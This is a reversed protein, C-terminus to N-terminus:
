LAEMSSSDALYGLSKLKRQLTTRPIDLFKALARVSGHQRLKKILYESEQNEVYENLGKMFAEYSCDYNISSQNQNKFFKETLDEPGILEESSLAYLKEMTNRLERVNGPWEYNELLQFTKYKLKRDRGFLKSFHIVLPEIDEKRSRLPALDIPIVNLRFYLDERFKGERISKLIDINTAAVVRVNVSVEKKGGVPYFKGEQLARLLKAQLDMSMEGIEDLFITGCNALEFKGAQKAHAGTFAGKEHGFLESELLNASIAACNIPVFNYRSRTSQQHLAKAVLEKGTGSEGHILVTSSNDKIKEIIRCVDRLHESRGIMSMQEIIKANETLREKVQRDEIDFTRVVQDYYPFCDRISAILGKTDEKSIFNSVKARLSQIPPQSSNDGTCVIISLKKSISFLKKAVEAGNTKEEDFHFDLVITAFEMPNQQILRIAESAQSVFVPEIDLHSKLQVKLGMLTHPNDDAFLVKYKVQQGGNM